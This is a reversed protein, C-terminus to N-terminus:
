LGWVAGRNNIPDSFIGLLFVDTIPPALYSQVNQLYQYLGGGSILPMMPIWVIGAAVVIVTVFRGIQVLQKESAGPSLKEYFDVAFLTATSNFLSSLSSMLAALIGAM